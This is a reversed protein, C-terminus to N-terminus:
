PMQTVRVSLELADVPFREVDRAMASPLHLLSANTRLQEDPGIQWGFSKVVGYRCLVRDIEGFLAPDWRSRVIRVAPGHIATLVPQVREPDTALAVWGSEGPGTRPEPWLDLLSGEEMLARERADRLAPQSPHFHAPQSPHGTPGATRRDAVPGRVTVEDAFLAGSRWRGSAEVISGEFTALETRTSRIPVRTSDSRSEASVVGLGNPFRRVLGETSAPDGDDVILDDYPGATTPQSAHQAMLMWYYSEPCTWRTFEECKLQNLQIRCTKAVYVLRSTCKALSTIM